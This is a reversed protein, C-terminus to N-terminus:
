GSTPGITKEWNIMFGLESLLNILENYALKHEYRSDGTILFNGLYVFITNFGQRAMMRTVAQTLRNFIEPSKVAGFPLKNGYLYTSHKDGQFQWALGTACYNSPHIPIHCYASKLDIKALYGSPKIKLVAKEVTM